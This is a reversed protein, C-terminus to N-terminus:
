QEIQAVFGKLDSIKCIASTEFKGISLTLKIGDSALDKVSMDEIRLRAIRKVLMLAVDGFTKAVNGNGTEDFFDRVSIMADPIVSFPVTMDFEIRKQMEKPRDPNLLLFALFYWNYDNEQMEFEIDPMNPEEEFKVHVLKIQDERLLTAYGGDKGRYVEEMSIMPPTAVNRSHKNLTWVENTVDWGVFDNGFKRKLQDTIRSFFRDYTAKGHSSAGCDYVFSIGYQNKSCRRIQMNRYANPEAQFLERGVEALSDVSIREHFKWTGSIVNEERQTEVAQTV